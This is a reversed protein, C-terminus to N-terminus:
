LIPAFLRMLNEFVRRVKNGNPQYSTSDTLLGDFWDSLEKILSPSYVFNVMEHNIFLSRYDLNASGVVMVEQDIITLKAHLMSPQYCFIQGGIESFEQMYSSRGLDFIIHDSSEPTILTVKVGRKVAIVLAKLIASDPIFYPTALRIHTQAQNISHLMAEFLANDQIDPGSPIAQIVGDNHIPSESSHPPLTLREETMYFWDDNFVKQYHLTSPGEISFLLDVWAKSDDSKKHSKHGMYASALNIGGTLLKTQDFLYIKRHNRFNIQSNILSQFIPNFFAYQGGAQRLKKLRSRNLYFPLSGISDILLRVEVGQQAKLILADLISLGTQDPAFTYTQIHICTKANQIETMLCDFITTSDHYWHVHNGYTAGSIQNAGLLNDLQKALRNSPEATSFTAMELIPKRSEKFFKRSGFVFYLLAGFFPFLILMLTWAMLNQPSRRQYLMHIVAPIVLFIYLLYFWLLSHDLTLTM